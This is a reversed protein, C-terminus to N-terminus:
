WTRTYEETEDTRVFQIIDDEWRKRPRGVSRNTRTTFSLDPSRRAAQKTWRAETHSALRMALRWKLKRQTGIWCLVNFTLM